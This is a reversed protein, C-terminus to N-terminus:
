CSPPIGSGTDEVELRLRDDVRALRVTLTGGSTMADVSNSILNLLALELQVADALLDLTQDPAMVEVQVGADELMPGAM